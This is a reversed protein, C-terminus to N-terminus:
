SKLTKYYVKKVFNTKKQYQKQAKTTEHRM